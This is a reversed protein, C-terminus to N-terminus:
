KARITIHSMWHHRCEDENKGTNPNHYWGGKHTWVDYGTMESLKEIDRRSYLRDKEMLLKCFPRSGGKAPPVDPRVEYSYKIGIEKKNGGTPVGKAPERSVVEGDGIGSPEVKITIYNRKELSKIAAEVKAVPLKSRQAIIEPTVKQDKRLYSIILDETATLVEIDNQFADIEFEMAEYRSRVPKSSVIIYDERREGILDIFDESLQVPATVPEPEASAAPPLMAISRLEDDSMSAVIRDAIAPNIVKIADIKNLLEIDMDDPYDSVDLQDRIEKFTMNKAAISEGFQFEIPETPEIELEEGLLVSFVGEVEQQRATVYTNQFIEFAERMENRGGLQGEVRVGFLMPSTIQHAVFINQSILNDIVTFDEKTLDSAGLDDIIPKKDAGTVFSIIFKQGDSGTFKERFKKEIIRKQEESPEGNPLTIMKSPTFGCQANGLTHRSVEIDAEIYNTAALYPPLTYTDIGPSYQKFYIVSKGQKNKGDYAPVAVPRTKNYQFKGDKQFYFMTNDANSRYKRYDIHILEVGGGKTPIRELYFGGHLEMDMICKKSVDKLTEGFSNVVPNYESDDKKWGEGCIYNVKSRVIAAHKASKKFLDIVYDPYTDKIGYSVWDKNKFQQFEPQMSEAMRLVIMSSSDGTQIFDGM